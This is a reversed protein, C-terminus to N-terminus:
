TTPPTPAGPPGPAACRRRPGCRRARTSIAPRGRASAALAAGLDADTIAGSEIRALYWSRPMTVPIGGARSLSAAAEALTEGTHGLFPNVAVSSALPWVPPIRRAAADAVDRLSSEVQTTINM